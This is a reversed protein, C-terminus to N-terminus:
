AAVVIPKHDSSYLYRCCYYSCYRFCGAMLSEEIIKEKGSIAGLTFNRGNMWAALPFGDRRLSIYSACLHRLSFFGALKQSYPGSTLDTRRKKQK